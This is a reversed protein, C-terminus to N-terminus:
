PFLPFEGGKQEVETSSTPLSVPSIKTLDFPVAGQPPTVPAANNHNTLTMDLSMSASDQGGSSSWRFKDVFFTKSNILMDGKMGNLLTVLASVSEAGRPDGSNELFQRLKQPDSEIVYNYSEHDGVRSLGRDETVHIVQSQARLLGPDPTVDAQNQESPLKYWTGVLAAAQESHIAPHPPNVTFSRLRFYVDTSTVVIDAQASVDHKKEEQDALTGSVHATFSLEKGGHALEGKANWALNTQSPTSYQGRVDFAASELQNVAQAARRLVEEPAFEGQRSCAAVLTLLAISPVLLRRMPELLPRVQTHEIFPSLALHWTRHLHLKASRVKCRACKYTRGSGAQEEGVSRDVVLGESDGVAAPDGALAEAAWVM